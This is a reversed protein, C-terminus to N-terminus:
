RPDGIVTKGNKIVKINREVAVAEFSIVDGDQWMDV